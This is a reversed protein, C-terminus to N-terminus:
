RYSPKPLVLASAPSRLGLYEQVLHRHKWLNINMHLTIALSSAKQIWRHMVENLALLYFTCFAAIVGTPTCTSLNFKVITHRRATHEAKDPM